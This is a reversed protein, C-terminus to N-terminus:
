DQLMFRLKTSPAKPNFKLNM